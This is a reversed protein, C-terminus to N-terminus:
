ALTRLVADAARESATGSAGPSRLRSSVEALGALMKERAPGDELLPRLERAVNEPTFESQLLEPVVRRGAIINPMAVYPVRLLRRGLLWTLSSVQYVVVMPTGLLAAEVTATGSAVVTARAHMLAERANHVLAVAIGPNFDITPVSNLLGGWASDAMTPAVPFILELEPEVAKLEEGDRVWQYGGLAAAGRAMTVI